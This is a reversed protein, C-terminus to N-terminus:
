FKLRWDHNFTAWNAILLGIQCSQGFRIRLLGLRHSNAGRKYQIQCVNQSNAVSFKRMRGNSKTTPRHLIALQLAM